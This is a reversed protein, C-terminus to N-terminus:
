YVWYKIFDEPSSLIVASLVRRPSSSFVPPLPLLPPLSLLLLDSMLKEHTPESSELGGGGGGGGGSGSAFRYVPALSLWGDISAGVFQSAHTGGGPISNFVSTIHKEQRFAGPLSSMPRQLFQLCNRRGGGKEEM